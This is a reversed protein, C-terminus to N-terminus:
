HKIFFLINAELLCHTLLLIYINLLKSKQHTSYVFFTKQKILIYLLILLKVLFNVAIFILIGFLTAPIYDCVNYFIRNDWLYYIFIRISSILTVDLFYGSIKKMILIKLENKEPKISLKKWRKFFFNWIGIMIINIVNTKTFFALLSNSYTIITLYKNYDEYNFKAFPSALFAIFFSLSIKVSFEFFLDKDKQLFTEEYIFLGLRILSKELLTFYLVIYCNFFFMYEYKGINNKITPIISMFFAYNLFFILLHGNLKTFMYNMMTLFSLHRFSYANPFIAVLVIGAYIPYRSFSNEDSLFYYLILFITETSIFIFKFKSSYMSNLLFVFFYIMWFFFYEKIFTQIKMKLNNCVCDPPLFCETPLFKGSIMIIITLSTVIVHPLLFSRFIMKLKNYNAFEKSVLTKFMESGYKRKISNTVKDNINNNVSSSLDSPETYNKSFVGNKDKYIKKKIIEPPNKINLREFDFNSHLSHSINKAQFFQLKPGFQLKETFFDAM